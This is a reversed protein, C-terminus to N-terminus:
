LLDCVRGHGRSLPESKSFVPASSCHRKFVNNTWPLSVRKRQMQCRVCAAMRRTNSTQQRASQNLPSRRGVKRPKTGKTPAETAEDPPSASTPQDDSVEVVPDTYSVLGWSEGGLLSHNSAAGPPSTSTSSSGASRVQGVDDECQEVSVHTWDPEDIGSLHSGLLPDLSSSEDNLLLMEDSYLPNQPPGFGSSPAAVDRQFPIQPKGEPLSTACSHQGQDTDQLPFYQPYLQLQAVPIDFDFAHPTSYNYTYAAPFRDLSSPFVSPISHHDRFGLAMDPVAMATEGGGYSPQGTPITPEWVNQSGTIGGTQNGQAAVAAGAVAVTALTTPIGFWNLPIGSGPAAHQHLHHPSRKSGDL